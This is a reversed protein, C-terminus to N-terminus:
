KTPQAQMSAGQTKLRAISAKEIQVRVNNAIEVTFAGNDVKTIQGHFGSATVVQDGVRLNSLMTQHKKQQKQQPRILMFYFIVFVFIMPLFFGMMGGAQGGPAADAAYAVNLFLSTM